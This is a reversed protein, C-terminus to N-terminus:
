PMDPWHRNNKAMNETAPVVRLNAECHLGCVLKSLIPVVHDVHQPIGTAAQVMQAEAYIAEIADLDAWAPMARLEAARRKHFYHTLKHPNKAKWERIRANCIERNRARYAAENSRARELKTERYKRSAALRKDWNAASWAKANAICRERNAERYAKDVASKREKNAASWARSRAKIKERNAEYYARRYRQEPTLSSDDDAM